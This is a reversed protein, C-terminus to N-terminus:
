STRCEIALCYGGLDVFGDFGRLEDRRIKYRTEPHTKESPFFDLLEGIFQEFTHGFWDFARSDREGLRYLARLGTANRSWIEPNPVPSLQLCIPGLRHAHLVKEADEISPSDAFQFDDELYSLRPRSPADDRKLVESGIPAM